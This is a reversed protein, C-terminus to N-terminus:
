FNLRLGTFPEFRRQVLYHDVGEDSTAARYFTYRSRVFVWFPGTVRYDTGFVLATQDGLERFISFFSDLNGRDIGVDIRMHDRQRFFLRLHYESQHHTGYHRRFYYWFEFQEFLLLRFETELDNGGLAQDLSIGVPQVTREGTLYAEADLIRATPSHVHYFSGVYGPMFQLGNYYLAIRLRFRALDIFNLSELDAGFSLGSGFDPYWAFSVFPSLQITGSTLANFNLDVNYGTLQRGDMRRTRLDTVYNLGVELTRSRLDKSWALPRLALRGGIVRDFLVNDSFASAGAYTGSAMTELGVTREDWAVYSNFFNVLHGTGLRTRDLPGARLYFNSRAPPNYRAFEVLRILDYLEDVDPSYDGYIGGRLTSSLRATVPRTVLDLAMGGAARWHDAILSLGGMAEFSSQRQWWILQLQERPDDGSGFTDPQATAPLVSLVAWIGALVSAAFRGAPPKAAGAAIASACIPRGRLVLKSALRALVAAPTGAPRVDTVFFSSVAGKRM